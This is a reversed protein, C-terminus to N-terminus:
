DNARSPAIVGARPDSVPAPRHGTFFSIGVALGSSELDDVSDTGKLVQRFYRISVAASDGVYFKGGLAGQVYHDFVDGADGGLGGASLELFGTGVRNSPTWNFTYVPGLMFADSETDSFSPSPDDLSLKEYSAQVGVQHRGSTSNWQWQLEGNAFFGVDQTDTLSASFAWENSTMQLLSAYAAGGPASVFLLALTVLAAAPRPSGRETTRSM